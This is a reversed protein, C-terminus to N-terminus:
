STQALAYAGAVPGRPAQGGGVGGCKLYAALSGQLKDNPPQKASLLTKCSLTALHPPIKLIWRVASKGLFRGTFKKKFRNLNSLNIAM